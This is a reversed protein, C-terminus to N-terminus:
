VEGVILCPLTVFFSHFGSTTKKKDHAVILAPFISCVEFIIEDLNSESSKSTKLQIIQTCRVMM